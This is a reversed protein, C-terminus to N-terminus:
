RQATPCPVAVTSICQSDHPLKLAVCFLAIYIAIGIAAAAVKLQKM